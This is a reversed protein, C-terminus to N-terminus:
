TNGAKNGGYDTIGKVANAAVVEASASVLDVKLAVCVICFCLSGECRGIFRNKLGKGSKRYGYM